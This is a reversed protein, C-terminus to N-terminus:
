HHHDLPYDLRLVFSLFSENFIQVISKSTRRHWNELEDIFTQLDVLQKELQDSQILEDSEM